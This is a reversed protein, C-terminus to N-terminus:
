SRVRPRSARDHLWSIWDGLKVVVGVAAILVVVLGVDYMTHELLGLAILGFGALLLLGAAIM